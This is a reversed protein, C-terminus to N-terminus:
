GSRQPKGTFTGSVRMERVRWMTAGAVGPWLMWDGSGKLKAALFRRPLARALYLRVTPRSSATDSPPSVISPSVSSSSASNESKAACHARQPQCNCVNPAAGAAGSRPRLGLLSSDPISPEGSCKRAPTSSATQPWAWLGCRRNIQQDTLWDSFTTAWAKDKVMKMWDAVCFVQM